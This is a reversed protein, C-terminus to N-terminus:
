SFVSVPAAISLVATSMLPGFPFYGLHGDGSSHTFLIHDIGVVSCSKAIFPFSTSICAVVCTFSSFIVSKFSAEPTHITPIM